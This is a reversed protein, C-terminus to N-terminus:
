ELPEGTWGKACNERRSIDAVVANQEVDSGEQHVVPV